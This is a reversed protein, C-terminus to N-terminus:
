NGPNGGTSGWVDVKKLSVGSKSLSDAPHHFELKIAFPANLSQCGNFELKSVFVCHSSSPLLEIPSSLPNAPV